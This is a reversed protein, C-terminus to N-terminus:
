WELFGWWSGLGGLGSSHPAVIGLCLAAAVAADVSSGQKSLVEIGLSTCRAADTVVAGQQFIQPDGFYIQMVLAVTVGTAFTLCATVIVTLGDQRCSCETETKKSQGDVTVEVYPSPGFWNKKNEKLKASIVTIQLQSKMTLSGM